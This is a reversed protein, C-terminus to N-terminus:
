LESLEPSAAEGDWLLLGSPAEPLWLPLAPEDSAAEESAEALRSAVLSFVSADAAQGIPFVKRRLRM